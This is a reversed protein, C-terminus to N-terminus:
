LVLLYIANFLRCIIHYSYGCTRLGVILNNEFICQLSTVAYFILAGAYLIYKSVIDKNSRNKTFIFYYPCTIRRKKYYLSYM